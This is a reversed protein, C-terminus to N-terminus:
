QGPPHAVRTQNLKTKVRALARQWEANGPDQQALREAITLGAQYARLAGSLDGQAQLIGGIGEHSIFLDRQWEANGPDQQALKQAINSAQTAATRAAGLDGQAMYAQAFEGLVAARTHLLLPPADEGGTLETLLDDARGLIRRVTDNSVGSVSKLL